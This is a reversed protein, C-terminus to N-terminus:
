VLTEGRDRRAKLGQNDLSVPQVMPDKLDLREQNVERGLSVLQGQPGLNVRKDMLDQNDQQDLSDQM